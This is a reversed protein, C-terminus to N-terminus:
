SDYFHACMARYRCPWAMMAAKNLGEADALLAASDDGDQLWSLPMGRADSAAGVLFAIANIQKSQYAVSARCALWFAAIAYDDQRASAIIRCIM